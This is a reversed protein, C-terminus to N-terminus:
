KHGRCLISTNENEEHDSAMLAQHILYPVGTQSSKKTVYFCLNTYISHFFSKIVGQNVALQVVQCHRLMVPGQAEEIGRDM